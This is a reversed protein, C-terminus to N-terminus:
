EFQIAFYTSTRVRYRQNRAICKFRSLLVDGENGKYFKQGIQMKTHGDIMVIMEVACHTHPEHSKSEPKLTTVHM